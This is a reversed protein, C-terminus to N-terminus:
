TVEREPPPRGEFKLASRLNSMHEDNIKSEPIFWWGGGDARYMIGGDIRGSQMGTGTQGEGGTVSSGVQSPQTRILDAPRPPYKEDRFWDEAARSIAEASEEKLARVFRQSRDDDFALDYFDEIREILNLSDNKNM